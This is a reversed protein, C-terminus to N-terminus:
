GAFNWRLHKSIIGNRSASNDACKRLLALILSTNQTEAVASDASAGCRRRVPTPMPPLRWRREFQAHTPNRASSAAGNGADAADAWRGQLGPARSSAPNVPDGGSSGPPGRSPRLCETIPCAARRRLRRGGSAAADREAHRRSTLVGSTPRLGPLWRGIPAMEGGGRLQVIIREDEFRYGAVSMARDNSFFILEASAPAASLAFVVIALLPEKM